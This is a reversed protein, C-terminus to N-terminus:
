TITVPAFTQPVTLSVNIVFIAVLINVFIMAVSHMQLERVKYIKREAELTYLTRIYM